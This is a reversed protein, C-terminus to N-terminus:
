SFNVHFSAHYELNGAAKEWDLINGRLAESLLYKAGAFDFQIGERVEAGIAFYDGFIEKFQALANAKGDQEDDGYGDGHTFLVMYTHGEGTAFYEAHVTYM